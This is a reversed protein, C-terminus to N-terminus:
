RPFFIRIIKGGEKRFQHIQLHSVGGHMTDALDWHYTGPKGGPFLFPDNRVINGTLGTTNRYGQGQFMGLFLEAAEDASNVTVSTKGSLLEKASNVVTRNSWPITKPCGALGLPDIWTIPNPVYTYSNIGGAFGIPDQTIYRGLDPAYYRFRNYYLRVEHDEYQGQFRIHNQTHSVQLQEIHGYVDYHASWVVQGREDTLERPTGLHDNHYIEYGKEDFRCLPVFSGPEFIYENLREGRKEALWVDGDWLFGTEGDKTKKAIRRGFPDYAFDIRGGERSEVSILQNDPDYSYRIVSGARRKEILNGVEDYILSADETKTLRDPQGYRYEREGRRVLNGTSDYVFREVKNKPQMVERLREIPDYAFRSTGKNSDSLEILNGEADYKYGRLFLTRTPKDLSQEIIRGCRDYYFSEELQGPMRRKAIRGAKDYEFEMSGRPTQLRRMQHDADYTFEVAQGSPSCRKIRRGLADYEHEIVQGNQSEWIVRGLADYRFELGSGPAEAEILRGVRDYSFNITTGDPRAREIVQGRLDCVFRTIRGAPDTRAILQRAPDYDYEWKLDDFGIEGSVRDLADYSFRYSEGRENRVEVLNAETDYVFRRTYGLADIREGLKNYDVYRFRTEAGNADLFDTLNGEPDYEYRHKTGDPREVQVLRDLVDYDYRTAHGLPNSIWALRGLDDYGYRTVAGLPTIFEVIQGRENWKFKTEGGLPDVTKELDGSQNYIYTRRNGLADITATINGRQDYVRRSEAGSEDILTQLLSDEAYYFKRMTGDPHAISICDFEANYEYRTTRGIEDTESLLEGNSGYTYHKEGGLADVVRVPLDLENFNYTTMRGLSDEIVTTRTERDYSLWREYIGRDGWTHVCRAEKGEGEYAYYFSLGNRDTLRILLHGDYAYRWPVLGRDTANILRGESDYTFSVLRATRIPDKNLVLNVAVLREAGNDLTIYAFNLRTGAGDELSNLSGNEYSLNIRNGNRDEIETLRLAAAESKGSLANNKPSDPSAVSEFKYRLGDQGRVVYVKDALRELWQKDLPNLAREGVEILEFGALLAEENRLIVMQQEDDEWLHIEYPHIWGCGLLGEYDVASTDYTRTFQIAIRGPLEFDTQSTLVRGSAVEVPEGTIVCKIKQLMAGIPRRLSFKPLGTLLKPLNKLLGLVGRFMGPGVFGLIILGLEVYWPVESEIEAYQKTGGWIFVNSSGEAIKAGCSIRDGKRAAPLGEIFVTASGEAIVRHPHSSFPVFPAGSCDVYDGGQGGDGASRAAPRSNIFVKSACPDLINGTKKKLLSGVFQGLSGGLSAGTAGAFLAAAIAGAALGGTLVVAAGIVAGALAGAFLAALAASHEVEDQRRAAEQIEGAGVMSGIAAVGSTLVSAKNLLQMVPLGM